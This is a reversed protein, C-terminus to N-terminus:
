EGREGVGCVGVTEGGEGRLRFPNPKWGAGACGEGNRESKGAGAVEGDRWDRQAKARVPRGRGGDEAGEPQFYSRAGLERRRECGGTGCWGCTGLGKQFQKDYVESRGWKAPCATGHGPM